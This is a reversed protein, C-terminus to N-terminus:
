AEEGGDKDLGLPALEYRDTGIGLKNAHTLQATSDIGEHISGFKDRSDLHAEPLASGRIGAAQSVLDLSAADVAVPDTSALIGINPVIPRDSWGLCDCDPTVDLVFNIAAFRDLKGTLAAAAYEAMKQQVISADSQWNIAIAGPSCVTVCEGCGACAESDILAAKLGPQEPVGGAVMSIAAEPCWKRCRGCADCQPPDVEPRVDSHMMQKGARSGFGMGLNKLAGGFGCIMHGKFHALSIIVDADLAEPVIKAEQFHEGAVPVTRYDIGLLGGAIVVPAGTVAYGFGNEMATIAHDRSNTRGGAYLTNSDTLFPRGGLRIIEDVVPRVYQPRLYTLNGREGFSVKVAVLDGESIISKLGLRSILQRYKSINRERSDARSDIFFVKSLTM